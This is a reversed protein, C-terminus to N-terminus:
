ERWKRSSSLFESVDRIECAGAAKELTKELRRRKLEKRVVEAVFKSRKRKGVLKDIDRLLEEPFVLHTKTKNTM